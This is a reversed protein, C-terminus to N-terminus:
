DTSLARSLPQFEPEATSHMGSLGPGAAELKLIQTQKDLLGVLTIWLLAFYRWFRPPFMM